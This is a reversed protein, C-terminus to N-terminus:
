QHSQFRELGLSFTIAALYTALLGGPQLCFRVKKNLSVSHSFIIAIKIIRQETQKIRAWPFNSFSNRRTDIMM